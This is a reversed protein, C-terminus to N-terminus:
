RGLRSMSLALSGYILSLFLDFGETRVSCEAIDEDALFIIDRRRKEMVGEGHVHVKYRDGKTKQEQASQAPFFDVLFGPWFNYRRKVLM